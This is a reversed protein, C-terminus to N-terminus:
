APTGDFFETGGAPNTGKGRGLVGAAKKSATTEREQSFVRANANKENNGENVLGGNQIRANQAPNGTFLVANQKLITKWRAHSKENCDV